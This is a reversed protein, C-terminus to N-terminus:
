VGKTGSAMERLKNLSSEVDAALKGQTDIDLYELAKPLDAWSWARIQMGLWGLATAVGRAVAHNTLVGCRKGKFLHVIESRQVSTVDIAGISSGLCRTCNRTKLETTMEQWLDDPIQGSQLFAIFVDDVFVWNFPTGRSARMPTIVSM